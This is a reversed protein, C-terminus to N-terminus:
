HSVSFIISNLLEKAVLTAIKPHVPWKLISVRAIASTLSRRQCVNTGFLKKHSSKKKKKKIFENERRKHYPVFIPSSSGLYKATCIYDAIIGM